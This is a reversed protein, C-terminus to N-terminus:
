SSRVASFPPGFTKRMLKNYGKNDSNKRNFEEIDSSIADDVTFQFEM